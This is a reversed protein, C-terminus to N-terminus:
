GSLCAIFEFDQQYEARLGARFRESLSKKGEPTEDFSKLFPDPIFVRVTEEPM